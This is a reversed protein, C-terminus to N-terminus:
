ELYELADGINAIIASPGPVDTPFKKHEWDFWMAKMGANLAGLVDARPDDGVYWIQEAPLAFYDRLVNFAYVSPKRVGIDDSVFVPGSFGICDAKRQQLPNWGNTLIAHPYGKAILAALLDPVGPLAQVHAPAMSLALARFEEVADSQAAGEGLADELALEIAQVLSCRGARYRDIERAIAIGAREEDFRAGSSAALRQALQVFAARELNNDVGLTHDFDFGIAVQKV